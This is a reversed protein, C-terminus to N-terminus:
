RGPIVIKSAEQRQMERAEAIMKQVTQEIAEPLKEMAEMLTKAGEILCSVPLPGNPSMLQTMATFIPERAEDPSGDPKVPSLRRITVFTLDTFSEERYLNNQDIKINTMRQEASRNM